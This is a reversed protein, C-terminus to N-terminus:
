LLLVDTCVFSEGIVQVFTPTEMCAYLVATLPYEFCQSRQVHASISHVYASTDFPEALVRLSPVDAGMSYHRQQLPHLVLIEAKFPCHPSCFQKFQAIKKELPLFDKTM